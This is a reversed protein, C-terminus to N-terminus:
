VTSGLLLKTFSAFKFTSSLNPFLLEKAHLHVDTELQIIIKLGIHDGEEQKKLEQLNRRLDPYFGNLNVIPSM